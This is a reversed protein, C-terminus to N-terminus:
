ELALYVRELAHMRGVSDFEVSSGCQMYVCWFACLPQQFVSQTRRLKILLYSSTIFHRAGPDLTCFYSYM